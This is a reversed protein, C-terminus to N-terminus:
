EIGSFVLSTRDGDKRVSAKSIFYISLPQTYTTEKKVRWVQEILIPKRLSKSESLGDFDYFFVSVPM